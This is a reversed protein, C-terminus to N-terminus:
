ADFRREVRERGLYLLLVIVVIIKLVYPRILQPDEHMIPQLWMQGFYVLVAAILTVCVGILGWKATFLLGVSCILVAVALLSELVAGQVYANRLEFSALFMLIFAFIIM